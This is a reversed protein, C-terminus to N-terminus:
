HVYLSAYAILLMLTGLYEETNVLPIETPVAIRQEKLYISFIVAEAYEECANSFSGQRLTPNSQILPLLNEAAESASKIRQTAESENGRHLSFIAQKSLKQIDRSKKIM